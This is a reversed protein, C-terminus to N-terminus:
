PFSGRKAWDAELEALGEVVIHEARWWAADLSTYTTRRVFEDRDEIDHRDVWRGDIESWCERDGWPTTVVWGVRRREIWVVMSAFSDTYVDRIPHDDPVIPLTYRTAHAAAVDPAVM